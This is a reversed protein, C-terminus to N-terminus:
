AAFAQPTSLKALLRRLDRRTFKWEFPQAVTQYHAQFGLIREQMAEFSAFDDPTLAKRALISLYIEVQNLWSAHVPLHVLVLNSWRGQLRDISRQGRHITGNDVIWFVRGASHYPERSMVQAVLADFTVITSHEVVHGFLRAGRVDWVVQYACTGLRQYEHEVRLPRGPGPPWTPHIRRRIQLGTKEDACLVFDDRGLKQGRWIGQYLDLVRGAKERFQPDRPFIWSRRNWPRIADESLWRWITAGSIEAIIGRSIVERRLEERSFRSLPIGLESPLQCALAKV